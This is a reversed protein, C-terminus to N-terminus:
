MPTEPERIHCLGLRDLVLLGFVLVNGEFEHKVAQKRKGLRLDCPRRETNETPFLRICPSSPAVPSGSESPISFNANLCAGCSSSARVQNRGGQEIVVEHM